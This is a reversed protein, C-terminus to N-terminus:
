NNSYVYEDPNGQIGSIYLSIFEILQIIVFIKQEQQLEENIKECIGLIRMATLSTRKRDRISDKTIDEQHYLDLYENFIKM